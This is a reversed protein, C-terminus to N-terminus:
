KHISKDIYPTDAISQQFDLYEVLKLSDATFNVVQLTGAKTFLLYSVGCYNYKQVNVNRYLSDMIRNNASTFYVQRYKSFLFIVIVTLISSCILFSIIRHAFNTNPEDPKPVSTKEM